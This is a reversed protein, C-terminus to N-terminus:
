VSSKPLKALATHLVELPLLACKVRAPTLVIGLLSTVDELGLKLTDQATMGKVKETLMSASAMSIACGEGQFRIDEVTKLELNKTRLKIQMGIKDGCLPNVEESAADPKPLQGFNRPNRYHDLINERYFQDM